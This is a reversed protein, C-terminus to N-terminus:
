ENNRNIEMESIMLDFDTGQFYFVEEVLGQFKHCWLFAAYNLITESETNFVAFCTGQIDTYFTTALIIGHISPESLLTSKALCAEVFVFDPCRLNSEHFNRINEVADQFNQFIIFKHDSLKEKAKNIVAQDSSIIWLLLSM